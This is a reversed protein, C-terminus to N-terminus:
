VHHRPIRTQMGTLQLPSLRVEGKLPLGGSGLPPVIPADERGTTIVGEELVHGIDIDASSVPHTTQIQM